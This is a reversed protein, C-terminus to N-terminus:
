RGDEMFVFVGASERVIMVSVTSGLSVLGNFLKNPPSNSARISRQALIAALLCLLRMVTVAETFSEDDISDGEIVTTITGTYTGAFQASTAGGDSGVGTNGGGSTVDKDDDHDCGALAVAFM